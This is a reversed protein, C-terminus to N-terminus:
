TTLRAELGDLVAALGFAFMMERVETTDAPKSERLRELLDPHGASAREVAARMSEEDLPDEAMAENYAVEPITTGLVFATLTSAAYDIELGRFGAGKFARSLRGAVELANPGLAPTRGILGASWPHRLIVERMSLAFARATQRWWKTEEPPPVTMEGWIEDYVLELLEHKNAVYWYLSTAGADLKAGLKRMSLGDLGEADLLEMAARVIEERSRGPTRAPRPERMWVSSFQKGTM